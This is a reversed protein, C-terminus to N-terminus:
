KETNGANLYQNLDQQPKCVLSHGQQHECTIVQATWSQALINGSVESTAVYFEDQGFWTQATVYRATRTCGGLLAVCLLAPLLIRNM